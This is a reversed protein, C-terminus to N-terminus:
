PPATVRATGRRQRPQEEATVAAINGHWGIVLFWHLESCEGQPRGRGAGRGVAGDGDGAERDAPVCDLPELDGLELDAAQGHSSDLPANEPPQPGRRPRPSPKTM